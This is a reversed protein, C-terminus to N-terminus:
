VISHPTYIYIYVLLIARWLRASFIKFKRIQQIFFFLWLRADLDLLDLLPGFIPSSQLALSSCLAQALIPWESHITSQWTMGYYQLFHRGEAAWKDHMTLLIVKTPNRDICTSRLIFFSVGKPTARFTSSNPLGGISGRLLM